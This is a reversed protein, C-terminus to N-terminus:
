PGGKGVVEKRGRVCTETSVGSARNSRIGCRFGESCASTRGPSSVFCDKFVRRAKSCSVNPTARLSWGIGFSYFGCSRTRPTASAATIVLTGAVAVVLFVEFIRRMQAYLSIRAIAKTMRPKKPRAIAEAVNRAQSPVGRTRGLLPM